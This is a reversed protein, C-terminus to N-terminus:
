RILSEADILDPTNPAGDSRQLEEENESRSTRKTRVAGNPGNRSWALVAALHRNDHQWMGSRHPRFPFDQYPEESRVSLHDTPQTFEALALGVLHDGPTAM